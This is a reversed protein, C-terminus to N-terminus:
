SFIYYFVIETIERLMYEKLIDNIAVFPEMGNCSWEFSGWCYLALKNYHGNMEAGIDVWCQNQSQDLTVLV